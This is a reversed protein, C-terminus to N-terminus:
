AARVDFVLEKNLARAIRTLTNVTLNSRGPREMRQYAQFSIELKQALQKQSLGAKERWSRLLYAMWIEPELTIFVVKEGKKPTPKKCIPLPQDRDFDTELAVELAEQANEVAEDFSHGYTVIGPLDPFRVGFTKSQKEEFIVAFYGTPIKKM